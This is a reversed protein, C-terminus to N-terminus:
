EEDEDKEREPEPRKFKASLIQQYDMGIDVEEGIPKLESKEAFSLLYQNSIAIDLENKLERFHIPKIKNKELFSKFMDGNNGNVLKAQNPIVYVNKFIHGFTKAAKPTKIVALEFYLLPKFVILLLEGESGVLDEEFKIRFEESALSRELLTPLRDEKEIKGQKGGM